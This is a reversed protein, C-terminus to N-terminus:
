PRCNDNLRRMIRTNDVGWVDEELFPEYSTNGCPKAKLPKWRRMDAELPRYEGAVEWGKLPCKNCCFDERMIIHQCECAGGKDRERRHTLCMVATEVERNNAEMMAESGRNFVNLTGPDRRVIWFGTLRPMRRMVAEEMASYAEKEEHRSVAAILDPDSGRIIIGLASRGARQVTLPAIGKLHKMGSLSNWQQMMPPALILRELGRFNALLPWLSWDAFRECCQVELSRIELLAGPSLDVILRPLSAISIAFHNNHYYLSGGLSYLSRCTFIISTSQLYSHLEGFNPPFIDPV